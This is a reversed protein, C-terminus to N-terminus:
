GAFLYEGNVGTNAYGLMAEALQEVERALTSRAETTLTSNNGQLAIEKARVLIDKTSDLATQTSAVFRNGERANRRFQEM